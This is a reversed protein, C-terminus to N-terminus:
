RIRAFLILGTSWNFITRVFDTRQALKQLLADVNAQHGDGWNPQPLLDDIFYFGGTKVLDLAEDLREFKGPWADAFFNPVPITNDDIM